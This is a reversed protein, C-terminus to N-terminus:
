IKLTIDESALLRQNLYNKYASNITKMFEAIDFPKHLYYAIGLCSAIKELETNASILVVPLKIGYLQLHQYVQVGTLRPMQYDLIL